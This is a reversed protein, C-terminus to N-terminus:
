SHQPVSRWEFVGWKYRAPIVRIRKLSPCIRQFAAIIQKRRCEVDEASYSDKQSRDALLFSPCSTIVLSTLAPGCYWILRCMADFGLRVGEITLHQLRGRSALSTESSGDEKVDVKADFATSIISQIPKPVPLALMQKDSITGNWHMGVTRLAGRGSLTQLITSVFESGTLEFMGIDLRELSDTHDRLVKLLDTGSLSQSWVHLHRLSVPKTSVGGSTVVGGASCRVALQVLGPTEDLRLFKLAPTQLDISKVGRATASGAATNPTSGDGTLEFRQLSPSAITLSGTGASDNAVSGSIKLVQLKTCVAALASLTQHTVCNGDAYLETIHPCGSQIATFVGAPTLKMTKHDSDTNDTDDRRHDFGILSLKRLNPSCSKLVTSLESDTLSLLDDIFLTQLDTWAKVCQILTTSDVRAVQVMAIRQLKTCNALQVVSLVGM